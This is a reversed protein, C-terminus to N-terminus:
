AIHYINIYSLHSKNKYIQSHGTIATLAMHQGQARWNRNHEVKCNTKGRKNQEKPYETGLKM